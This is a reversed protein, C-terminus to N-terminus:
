RMRQRYAQLQAATDIDINAAPMPVRVPSVGEELLLQRAGKEGHLVKLASFYRAPFVAPVGVLGQPERGPGTNGYQACALTAGDGSAALLAQYDQTTIAVQDALVVMLASPQFVEEARATGWALSNGMGQEHAPCFTTACPKALPELQRAYAGLVVMCQQGFVPALNQLVTELLSLEGIKGALKCGGFRRASGAALM